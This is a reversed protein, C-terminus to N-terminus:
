SIINNNIWLTIDLKIITEISMNRDWSIYRSISPWTMWTKRAVMDLTWRIWKLDKLKKIIVLKRKTLEDRTMLIYDKEELM